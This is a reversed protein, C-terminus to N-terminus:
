PRINDLVNNPTLLGYKDVDLRSDPVASSSLELILRACNRCMEGGFGQWFLLFGSKRARGYVETGSFLFGRLFM